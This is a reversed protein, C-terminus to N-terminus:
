RATAALSGVQIEHTIVSITASGEDRVGIALRQRGPKMTLQIEYGFLQESATALDIEPVSVPVEASAIGTRAGDEGEATVFVTLRGERGASGPVLVISGLPVGIRLPVRYLGDIATAGGAPRLQVGLPNQGGGLWLAALLRQSLMTEASRNEYAHRYRTEVGQRRVRVEVRRLEGAGRGPAPYALSYYSGADEFVPTMVSGLDITNLLARGGTDAALFGLSDQFSARLEADASTRASGGRVEQRGGFADVTYFTVRAANATATLQRM